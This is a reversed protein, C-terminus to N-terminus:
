PNKRSYIDVGSMNDLQSESQPDASSIASQFDVLNTQSASVICVVNSGSCQSPTEEGLYEWSGTVNLDTNSNGTFQFYHDDLAKSKAQQKVTFASISVALVIALTGSLYKKM